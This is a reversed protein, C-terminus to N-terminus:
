PEGTTAEGFAVVRLDLPLDRPAETGLYPTLEFGREHFIARYDWAFAKVEGDREFAVAFDREVAVAPVPTQASALSAFALLLVISSSSKDM